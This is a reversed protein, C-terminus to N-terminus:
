WGTVIDVIHSAAVASKEVNKQTPATVAQLKIIVKGLEVSLFEMNIDVTHM